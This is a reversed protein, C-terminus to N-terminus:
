QECTAEAKASITRTNGGHDGLWTGVLPVFLQQAFSTSVVVTYGRQCNALSNGVLTTGNYVSLAPTAVGGHSANAQTTIWALLGSDSCATTGDPLTTTGNPNSGCVAAARAGDRIANTLQVQDTVVVGLIVLGMLLLMAVPAILAFEVM